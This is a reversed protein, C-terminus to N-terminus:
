TAVGEPGEETTLRVDAFLFECTAETWLVLPSTLRDARLGHNTFGAVPVTWRVWEGPVQARLRESIDLEIHAPYTSDMRLFVQGSPPDIVLLVLSLHADAMLAACDIADDALFYAQARGGRFHIRRADEQRKWDTPSEAVVGRLSESRAGHVPVRWDAEDGVFLRFPPMPRQDLIALASRDHFVHHHPDTEPLDSPLVDNDKLSLGFGFPFLSLAEGPSRGVDPDNPWSFSLRGDFDQGGEAFILDALAGAESGPLWAAIFADSANLEPNVWLPRGSYFVSIVPVGADQIRKLLGLPALEDASFSVHHRDGVGEAYPTEGFVVIAADYGDFSDPDAVYTASGNASAVAAEIGDYLTSARPFDDNTVGDGQWTLSWGGSQMPVSTAGVGTVLVKANRQLPLIGDRNKLLVASERVAQRALLRHAPCGVTDAPQVQCQSNPAVIGARVKVRLIRRVADDLREVAIDGDCVQRHTQHWLDRWHEPAMLMDVGANIAALGDTNDYPQLQGHGNWDGVVFGDFGMQGKLVGTLLHYHGHIKDGQWSNFSAMVVQVGSAIAQEYGTGHLAYLTDEDCVVDGQDVGATTGGDGIFHKACAVVRDAGLFGTSDMEGQLGEVAPATLAAVLDPSESFSEYTRGWRIDRAVALTPAFNWTIGTARIERATAAAIDRVLQPNRTAGLGINHPFLTAGFVNGHGHVADTGWMLPVVSGRVSAEDFSAVLACWEEVSAHMNDSPWAGGGNLVSGIHYDEVDQPSVFRIDPQIIQGVKQRLSMRNILADVQHDSESPWTPARNPWRM